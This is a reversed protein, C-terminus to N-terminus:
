PGLREAPALADLVVQLALGVSDVLLAEGEPGLEGVPSIVPDPLHVELSEDRRVNRQRLRPDSQSIPAVGNGVRHLLRHASTSRV